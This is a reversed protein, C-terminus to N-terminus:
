CDSFGVVFLQTDLVHYSPVVLTDLPNEQLTESEQGPRSFAKMPTETGGPIAVTRQATPEGSFHPVEADESRGYRNARNGSCGATPVRQALPADYEVLGNTNYIDRQPLRDNVLSHPIYTM